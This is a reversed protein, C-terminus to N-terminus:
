LCLQLMLVLILCLANWRQLILINRPPFMRIKIIVPPFYRHVSNFQVIMYLHRADAETNKLYRICRFALLADACRQVCSVAQNVGGCTVSVFRGDPLCDCLAAAGSFAQEKCGLNPYLVCPIVARHAGKFFRELIQPGLIQVKIQDVHRVAIVVAAPTSHLFQVMGPFDPCDTDAIKHRVPKGIQNQRMFYNGSYVLDFQVWEALLYRKATQHLPIVNLRHCPCRKGFSLVAQKRM